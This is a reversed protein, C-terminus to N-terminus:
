DSGALESAHELAQRVQHALGARHILRVLGFYTAGPSVEIETSNTMPTIQINARELWNAAVLVSNPGGPVKKGFGTAMMSPMVTYHPGLKRRIVASVEEASIDPRPFTITSM